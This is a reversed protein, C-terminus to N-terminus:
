LFCIVSSDSNKSGEPGARIEHAFCTSGLIILKSDVMGVAAM